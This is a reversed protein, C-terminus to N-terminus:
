YCFISFFLTFFYLLYFLFQLILSYLNFSPSLSFFFSISSFLTLLFSHRLFPHVLRSHQLFSYLIVSYTFFSSIYSFLISLYHLFLIHLLLSTYSLLALHIFLSLPLSQQLTNSFVTIFLTSSLLFQVHNCDHHAIQLLEVYM